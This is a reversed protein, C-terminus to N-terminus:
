KALEEKMKEYEDHSIEGKAYREDLIKRADGGEKPLPHETERIVLYIVMFLYGILPLIVLILWLIASMKREKADRYVFYGIIVQFIWLVLVWVGGYFPGATHRMYSGPYGMFGSSIPLYMYINMTVFEDTGARYPIDV